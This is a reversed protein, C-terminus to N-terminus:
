KTADEKGKCLNCIKVTVPKKDLFINKNLLYIGKASGDPMIYKVGTIKGCLACYQNGRDVQKQLFERIKQEEDARKYEEKM